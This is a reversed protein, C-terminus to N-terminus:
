DRRDQPGSLAQDLVAQYEDSMLYEYELPVEPHAMLEVSGNLSKRAIRQLGERSLHQSLAFFYDRLRYRRALFADVTSRYWRNVISRESREFTFSRRVLSGEPLARLALVNSALHMHQHGDFHDPATGYLRAFEELQHDMVTRFASHLLPNYVVLTYRSSRLFRAVTEHAVALRDPVNPASFRETFNLHLGLRIGCDRGLRAARESDAMFVMASASTVRRASYCQLIRDTAVASRGFDDANVTIPGVHEIM